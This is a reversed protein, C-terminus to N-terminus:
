YRLIGEPNEFPIHGIRSFNPRKLPNRSSTTFVVGTPECVKEAEECLMEELVELLIDTTPVAMCSEYYAQDKISNDLSKSIQIDENTRDIKELQKIM